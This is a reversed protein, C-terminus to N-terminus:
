RPCPSGCRRRRRRRISPDSGSSCLLSRLPLQSFSHLSHASRCTRYHRASFGGVLKSGTKTSVEVHGAKTLSRCPLRSPAVLLIEAASGGESRKPTAPLAAAAGCVDHMTLPKHYISRRRNSAKTCRQSIRVCAPPRAATKNRRFRIRSPLRPLWREEQNTQERESLREARGTENKAGLSNLDEVAFGGGLIGRSLANM